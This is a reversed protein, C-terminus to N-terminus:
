IARGGDVRLIEGTIYDSSALFAVARAIDRPTGERGLPIRSREAARDGPGFAETPWLITGPAVGNVRLGPALELALQRTLALLAAKASCYHAYGRWPREAAIDLVNVIAGGPRPLLGAAAQCIAFPAFFDVAFLLELSPREIREFPLREFLAAGNVVLDLGSLAEHARGPLARAAEYDSLDAPLVAATRGLARARRAGEEAGDRSAHCHFAVHAGEDALEDAIARGLRTGAGTVLARRGDLSGM